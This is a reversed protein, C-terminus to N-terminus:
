FLYSWPFQIEMLVCFVLFVFVWTGMSLLLAKWWSERAFFFTYCFVFFPISALFGAAMLLIFFGIVMLIAMIEKHLRQSDEATKDKQEAKHRKMRFLDTELIRSLKSSRDRVLEIVVLLLTPIGIALPFLAAKKGYNTSTIIVIMLFLLFGLTFYFNGSRPIRIM